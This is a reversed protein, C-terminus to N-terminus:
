AAYVSGMGGAGLPELLVYHGIGTGRALFSREGGPGSGGARTATLGSESSLDELERQCRACGAAHDSIEEAQSAPQRVLELLTERSPCSLTNV